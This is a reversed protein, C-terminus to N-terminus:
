IEVPEFKPNESLLKEMEGIRLLGAQPGIKGVVAASNFTGWRMAARVELSKMLASLFGSAFADGAGTREVVKVEYVNCFYYKEGDFAYSGRPGDTIVSIKPGFQSLEKLAAKIEHTGWRQPDTFWESPGVTRMGPSRPDQINLKASTLMQSAEEKNMFIVYSAAVIAKYKAFEERLQMQAPNFGIKVKHSKAFNTIDKFFSEYDPGLSSVYLWPPTPFNELLRYHRPYKRELITREGKYNIVTSYSSQGAEKFILSTDLGEKKMKDEILKGTEDDGHITYLAANFGFRSMAVANNSANGGLSFDVSDVPIKDAYNFCVECTPKDIRCHIDVDRENLTLFVDLTTDGVSIIDLM